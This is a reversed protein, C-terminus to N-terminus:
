RRPYKFCPLQVYGNAPARRFYKEFGAEDLATAPGLNRLTIMKDALIIVDNDEAARMGVHPQIHEKPVGAERGPRRTSHRPREARVRPETILHPDLFACHGIRMRFLYCSSM